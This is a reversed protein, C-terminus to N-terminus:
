ECEVDCYSICGSVMNTVQGYNFQPFLRLTAKPQKSQFFCTIAKIPVLLACTVLAAAIIEVACAVAAIVVIVLLVALPNPDNVASFTVMTTGNTVYGHYTVENAGPGASSTVWGGYGAPLGNTAMLTFFEGDFLIDENRLDDTSLVFQVHDVGQYNTPGNFVWNSNTRPLLTYTFTDGTAVNTANIVLSGLNTSAGVVRLFGSNGNLPIEVNTRATEFLPSWASASLNTLSQVQYHESDGTWVLGVKGNASSTPTIRPAVQAATQELCAWNLLVAMGAAIAHHIPHPLSIPRTKM